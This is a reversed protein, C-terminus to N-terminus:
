LREVSTNSFFWGKGDISIRVGSRRMRDTRAFSTFQASTNTNAIEPSGFRAIAENLAEFNFDTEKRM